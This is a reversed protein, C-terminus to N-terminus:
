QMLRLPCRQQRCPSFPDGHTAQLSPISRELGGRVEDGAEVAIWGCGWDRRWRWILHWGM